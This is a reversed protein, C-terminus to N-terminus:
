RRCTAGSGVPRARAPIGEETGRLAGGAAVLSALHGADFRNQHCDDGCGRRKQQSRDALEHRFTGAHEVEAELPHHDHPRDSSERGGVDGAGRHETDCGRNPAPTPMDRSKPKRVWDRTDLWTAVPSASVRNPRPSEPM